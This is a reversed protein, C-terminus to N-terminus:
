EELGAPQLSVAGEVYSLRAVRSPPDGDDARASGFAALALVAFVTLTAPATARPIRM